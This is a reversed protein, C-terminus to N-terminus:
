QLERITQKYEHRLKPTLSYYHRKVDKRKLDASKAYKNILISTKKNM